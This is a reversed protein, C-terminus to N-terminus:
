QYYGILEIDIFKDLLGEVLTVRNRATIMISLVISM